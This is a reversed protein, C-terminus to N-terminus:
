PKIDIKIDGTTTKIKCVGGNQSAPVNVKGTTTKADFIKNSLLSGNIDGTTVKMFLEAADCSDFNIDGTTTNATLATCRIGNLNIDGTTSKCNVNGSVSSELSIDGTTVSIDADEFIFGEPIKIDGTTAKVNLINYLGQPISIKIKPMEFHIGIYDYWKRTDANDIILTDNKVTVNHRVKEYECCLINSKTETTPVFTIDATVTKISINKFSENIEYNNTVFKDTSLKKFNWGLVTMVGLFIICGVLIFSTACIFWIKMNKKM